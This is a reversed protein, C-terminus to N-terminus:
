VRYFHQEKQYWYAFERQTWISRGAQLHLALYLYFFSRRGTVSFHNHSFPMLSHMTNYLCIVWDRYKWPSMGLYQLILRVPYIINKRYIPMWGAISIYLKSELKECTQAVKLWGLKLVRSFISYRKWIHWWSEYPRFGTVRFHWRSYWSAPLLLWIARYYLLAM